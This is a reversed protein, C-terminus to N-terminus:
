QAIDVVEMSMIEDPEGTYIVLSVTETAILASHSQGTPNLTYGDSSRV